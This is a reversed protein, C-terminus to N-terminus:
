IKHSWFPSRSGFSLQWCAQSWCPNWWSWRKCSQNAFRVKKIKSLLEGRLGFKDDHVGQVIFVVDAFGSPSDLFNFHGELQSKDGHMRVFPTFVLSVAFRVFLYLWYFHFFGPELFVFPGAANQFSHETGSVEIQLLGEKLVASKRRKNSSM